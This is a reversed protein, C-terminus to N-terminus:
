FMWQYAVEELQQEGIQIRKTEFYTGGLKEYFKRNPNNSLVWVMAKTFGNNQFDRFILNVLKSGMGMGHVSTLLYIAYLEGYDPYTGTQEAGGTAFGAIEGTETELVYMYNGQLLYKEYKSARHSVNLQSLYSEDIIEQYTIRWSKVSVKAIGWADQPTALRINMNKFTSRGKM